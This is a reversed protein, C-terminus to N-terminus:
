ADRPSPSTYLLCSGATELSVATKFLIGNKAGVGNGVMIAVPTALGLACPCSIVLVFIARALSFGVSQGLLLWVIATIVAITIVAPVFVGSVRDAIKAIPAKTASADSVMKIIQSLTTDEGIRTAECRIYGSQNITAASVTDGVLKDVPVSEGTLAAENVASEGDIVVGDVPISEGPCVAFIDGKKVQEIPVTKEVGDVVITATKPALKMLGKLADTTKGKSHAELMKGVTILALIMAASEFYFEHMYSMVAASDGRVQADTMM